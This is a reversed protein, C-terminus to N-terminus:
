PTLRGVVLRWSSDTNVGRSLGSKGLLEPGTYEVYEPGGVLNEVRNHYYCGCDVKCADHRRQVIIKAVALACYALTFPISSSSAHGLDLYLPCHFDTRLLSFLFVYLMVM